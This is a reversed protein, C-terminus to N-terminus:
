EVFVGYRGSIWQLIGMAYSVEFATGLLAGMATLGLPSLIDAFLLPALITAQM